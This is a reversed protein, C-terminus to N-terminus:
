NPSGFLNHLYSILTKHWPNSFRVRRGYHWKRISTFTPIALLVLGIIVLILFGKWANSIKKESLCITKSLSGKKFIQKCVGESGKIKSIESTKKGDKNFQSVTLKQKPKKSKLYITLSVIGSILILFCYIIITAKLAFQISEKMFVPKPLTDNLKDFVHDIIKITDTSSM